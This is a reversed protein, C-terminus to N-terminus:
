PFVPGPEVRQAGIAVRLTVPESRVGAREVVLTHVGPTPRYTAGAIPAGDVIWRATGVGNCRLALDPLDGVHEVLIRTGDSPSVVRLAESRAGSAVDHAHGPHAEGVRVGAPRAREVWARLSEPAVFTGDHDHQACPAHPPAHGRAVRTRVRQPCRPGARLGTFPCLEVTEEVVPELLVAAVDSVVCYPCLQRMRFQVGLLAVSVVAAFTAMCAQAFRVQAGRLGTLVGLMVFAAVGFAPTPVGLVHAFVTRKVADCGGGQACFIPVPRTYDVLLVTSAALAFLAPVLLSAWRAADNARM